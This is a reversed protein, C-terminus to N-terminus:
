IYPDSFRFCEGNRLKVVTTTTASAHRTSGDEARDAAGAFSSKEVATAILPKGNESLTSVVSAVGAKSSGNQAPWPGVTQYAYVAASLTRIV